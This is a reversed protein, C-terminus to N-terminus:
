VAKHSNIMELKEGGTKKIHCIPIGLSKFIAAQKRASQLPNFWNAAFYIWEQDLESWFLWENSHKIGAGKLKQKRATMQM